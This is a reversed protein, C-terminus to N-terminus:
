SIGAEQTMTMSRPDTPIAIRFTAGSGPSSEVWIRGGHLEVMAKAIPLGLGSGQNRHIAETESRYFREFIHKQEEESIGPGDDTVSFLAESPDSELSFVITGGSSGYKQANGLVNLLARELRDSDVLAPVPEPPVRVELHQGRAQALPEISRASRRAIDRLDCNVPQFQVRKAQLRTLELLDSVLVAMRDAALQINVFMRHLPEPIGPPENALVVGISAKIATLPTRLDHSVNALFEDKQRELNRQATVDHLTMVAGLRVGSDGVVPAASGEFVMEQGTATQTRMEAGIVTEGHLAARVIPLEDERLPRDDKSLLGAFPHDHSLIQDPASSKDSALLLRRATENLYIVHGSPNAIVVGDAIKGLITAREVALREAEARAAQERELAQQTERMLLANDVALACRGAVDEALARDSAQYHHDPKASVFSITGIMRGRAQLPVTLYSTFALERLLDLHQADKAINSYWDDGPITAIEPQGTRFVKAVGYSSNPDIPHQRRLEELLSGKQPDVHAVAVLRFVGDEVIDVLCADAFAPVALRAVNALTTQYDLSSALIASAEALFELRRQAEEAQARAAQERALLQDREEEARKRETVDKIIVVAGTIEGNERIPTSVYEVPFSTGDKRWFVEGTVHHVAGDRLAGFVPCEDAPYPSGDPKSHHAITHLSKGILEEIEYGLMRAVAPNIFRAAGEQDLGYIGEGAANLISEHWQSLRRLEEDVRRHETIDRAIGIFGTVNRADDCMTSVSLLVILRTGDKRVYTWARTETEGCRPSALFVDLGPPVGLEAARAAVEASDHFALPTLHGIVEDARYGLMREAGENFFTITGHLDTGIIAYGTAARLVATFKVDDVPTGTQGNHLPQTIDVDRALTEDEARVSRAEGELRAHLRRQDSM